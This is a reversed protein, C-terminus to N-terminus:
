HHAIMQLKKEECSGEHFWRTYRNASVLSEGGTMGKMGRSSLPLVRTRGEAELGPSM